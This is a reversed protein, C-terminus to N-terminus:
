PYWIDGNFLNECGAIHDEFLHYTVGGGKLIEIGAIVLEIWRKPTQDFARKHSVVLPIGALVIARACDPCAAWPAVMILGSTSIGRKAAKLIAAREAHETVWYKRPREYNKPHAAMDSNVFSNVGGLIVRGDDPHILLAGCKTSTDTSEDAALQYAVRMLDQYNM